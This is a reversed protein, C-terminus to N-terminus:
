IILYFLKTLALKTEVNACRKLFPIALLPAQSASLVHKSFM